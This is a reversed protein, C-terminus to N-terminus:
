EKMGEKQVQKGYGEMKLMEDLTIGCQSVTIEINSLSVSGDGNRQYTPIVEPFTGYPEVLPILNNEVLVKWLRPGDCIIALIKYSEPLLLMQHMRAFLGDDRLKGQIDTNDINLIDLDSYGEVEAITRAVRIVGIHETM